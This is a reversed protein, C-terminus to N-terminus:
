QGRGQRVRTARERAGLRDLAEALGARAAPSEPDLSLAESFYEAARDPDGLQLEHVGLNAYTAPDRPDARLSARFANRAADAQGLSAYCAGLLNQARAHAPNGAVLRSAPGIADQPRGELYALTAAYYLTDESNPGLRTMESVAARLNPIDATDAFISALQELARPDDPALQRAQRAADLARDVQGRAALLRSLAIRVAPNDPQGIALRELLREADPLRGALGAARGFAALAQRDRADLEVARALAEYALGPAEAQMLMLGLDRWSRANTSRRAEALPPPAAAQRALALLAEVNRPDSRGYIFRPASFELALTDDTQIPIAAGAPFGFRALAQRGGIFLSYLTFPETAGVEALDTAVGPRTWHRGIGDLARELPHDAGLLLLDGSGVLWMTGEPFVSAFTAVISRLDREGIDYTHTWQCLIGGPALRARAALFFERTFLPAVGAMWPNSPESVIVDYTRSALLLHTRGDGVILRSRPDHLANHNERSFYTSAEVVEPSIELVDVQAVPHRLAAGATVGSGLGIIAVNRPAPHLLLPLHGLLKQTLMDGANSADVKGDIALSVTGGLRRVTVTAAAGEAYYLLDGAKLGVELDTARLYPAYKYAGSALLERDWGPTAYVAAIAAAAALAGATRSRRTLDRAAAALLLAGAAALGAASRLTASLGLLPVLWFGAALAGAIAGATNAAYVVAVDFALQDSRRASSAVAFPFAAGLAITIPLLLASVAAIQTLLVSRFQVDASSVRTAVALLVDDITTTAALSGLSTAALCWALGWIPYRARAALRSGLASGIALGAIFIMLMASFAHTTPGIVQALVRTWAVEYVLAVFGSTAVAIAALRPQAPPRLADVSRRRPFGSTTAGPDPQARDEARAMAWVVAAAVLNLAVAGRTTAQLGIAPLLIFGAAWAGAAAGVTNAAYLAGAEGGASAVGTLFWRAAFPLTAGMAACPGLLLALSLVLRSFGFVLGGGGDAYAWILLPRAWALAQPILLTFAGILLELAAYVRLARARDFRASYKGGLAAGGALGGMFAALVTSASAVTHGMHLTLLRTWAVEYILAAAGSLAYILLFLRRSSRM